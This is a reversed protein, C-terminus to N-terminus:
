GEQYRGETYLTGGGDDRVTRVAAIDARDEKQLEAAVELEKEEVRDPTEAEM